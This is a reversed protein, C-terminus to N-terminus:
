GNSVEMILRFLSERTIEIFRREPPRTVIKWEWEVKGARKKPPQPTKGGLGVTVHVLRTPGSARKDVLLIGAQGAPGIVDVRGKAGILLTGVPVLDVEQGGIKLVMQPAEYQGINEENLIVQVFGITIQGSRVYKTLFSKIKAHLEDLRRLWEDRAEEWDIPAVEAAADQQRAVFRDFDTSHM